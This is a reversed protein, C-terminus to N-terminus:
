GGLSRAAALVPAVPGNLDPRETPEQVAPVDLAGGPIPGFWEATGAIVKGVVLDAGEHRLLVDEDRAQDLQWTGEPLVWTTM